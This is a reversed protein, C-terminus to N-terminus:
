RLSPATQHTRAIDGSRLMPPYLLRATGRRYVAAPRGTEPTRREGTPELFHEARTVKRRFNSPDLPIGWIVEYIKRLDSVTFPEPCFVAAITTYELQSRARELAEQLIKFHDFALDIRGDLISSVSTWSANRADSGALPAPLDPGLALYAVTIVRGRPDRDPDGYTRLQELHLRRGDLGTEEGLERLAAQDLTEAERIYGGPLAPRGLYPEKGREVLLVQLDDGRVTLIVLDVTVAVPRVQGASIDNTM